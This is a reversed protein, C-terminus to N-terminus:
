LDGKARQVSSVWEGCGVCVEGWFGGDVVVLVINSSDGRIM